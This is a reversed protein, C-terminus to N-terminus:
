RSEDFHAREKRGCGSKSRTEWMNSHQKGKSHLNPTCPESWFTAISTNRLDEYKICLACMGATQTVKYKEMRKTEMGRKCDSSDRENGGSKSKDTKQSLTYKHHQFHRWRRFVVLVMQAMM